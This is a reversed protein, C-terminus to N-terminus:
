KELFQSYTTQFIFSGEIHFYRKEYEKFIQKKDYVLHSFRGFKTQLSNLNKLKASGSTLYHGIVKQPGSALSSLLHCHQIDFNQGIYEPAGVLSQFNNHTAIFNGKVEFPSNVLTLLECNTINFSGKVSGFKYPIKEFKHESIDVDGLVHIVVEQGNDDFAYSNTLANRDFQKIWRQAKEKELALILNSIM